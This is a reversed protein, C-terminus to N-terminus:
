SERLHRPVWTKAPTIDGFDFDDFDDDPTPAALDPVVRLPPVKHEDPTDAAGALARHHDRASARAREADRAARRRDQSTWSEPADTRNQLDLLAAAVEAQDAKRKGRGAILRTVERLTNDTFPQHEDLAHTWRLMHWRGDAPDCFYAHLANRPDFRIPWKGGSNPYPSTANRYRYLVDDYYTLHNNEVGDPHIKRWAIPMLQFYMTPDSPCTVYGALSVGLEYAQNPSLRESPYGPVTLGAHWRRQYVAVVYEAFFEELEAITWRAVGQPDRGRRAVDPGKYGAVHESFQQRITNFVAEVEPKDTPKGKRALPFNIGLSTCARRVVDSKYPKGHDVLLTEPYIVPRAAAAALRQDIKLLRENPIRMMSFRLTDAWGPRMPEPTMADAVLLGIDIAKTGEPTLRWALLSRSFLDLAVTLEVPVTEDTIPDYAFVDLRTTDLMVIEGPRHAVVHGFSWDPQNATTQRTKSLGFTHRNKLLLNTARRFTSESPLVVAGPGHAADLRNQVRRYFRLLTGTSDNEEYAAQDLIADIIRPDLRALPNRARQKRQDVLAMVGHERYRLLQKWLWRSSLGLEDAKAELRDRQTRAPDYAPRPEGPAPDAANGSRYGTTAERLHDELEFAAARVDDALDDWLAGQDWGPTAATDLPPDADTGGPANGATLDTTPATAPTPAAAFSLDALLAATTIIQTVGSASRLRVATDLFGVIQHDDDEFRIWQHLTLKQPRTVTPRRHHVPRHCSQDPAPASSQRHPDVHQAPGDARARVPTSERLPETLDFVIQQQWCLHFLVPRALEPVETFSCLDGIPVPKHALALLQPLYEAGAHPPRRFGALWSVTAWLQPDPEGVLGYDWGLERCAARTRRAQRQVDLHDLKGPNKVDLLLVSGDVRRAFLDPTHTWPGDTDVGDFTLPQGVFATVDPDFDLLTMWKSELWSEYGVLRGTTASWYDGPTHRSGIYHPIVRAPPCHEFAVDRAQALPIVQDAGGPERYYVATRTGTGMTHWRPMIPTM